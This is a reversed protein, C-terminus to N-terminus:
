PKFHKTIFEWAAWLGSVLGVVWPTFTMIQKRAWTARDDARLLKRLRMVEVESLPGADLDDDSSSHTVAHLDL